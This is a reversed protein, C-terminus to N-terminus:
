GRNIEKSTSWSLSPPFICAWSCSYFLLVRSHGLFLVRGRCHGLAGVQKTALWSVPKRAVHGKIELKLHMTDTRHTDHVGLCPQFGAASVLWVWASIETKGAAIWVMAFKQQPSSADPLLGGPSPIHFHFVNDISSICACFVINWPSSARLCPPLHCSFYPHNNRNQSMLSFSGKSTTKLCTKLFAYQELPCSPLPM